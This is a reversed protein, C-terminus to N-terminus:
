VPKRAARKWEGKAREGREEKRKGELCMVM